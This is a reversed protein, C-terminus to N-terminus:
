IDGTNCAAQTRQTLTRGFIFHTRSNSGKHSHAQAGIRVQTHAHTHRAVPVAMFIGSGCQLQLVDKRSIQQTLETVKRWKRM